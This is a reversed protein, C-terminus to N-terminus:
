IRRSLAPHCDSGGDLHQMEKRRQKPLSVFQGPNRFLFGWEVARNLAQNLIMHTYQVTRPSLGKATMAAYAGQIDPATVRDLRRGGICPYIHRRLLRTYDSHTKDAVSGRASVLLWSDLYEALTQKAPEVYTHADVQGLMKTLEREASKFTGRFTKSSYRRKGDTGRGLYVRLLYRNLGRALIQGRTRERRKAHSM